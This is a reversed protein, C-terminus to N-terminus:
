ETNNPVILAKADESTPERIADPVTAEGRIRLPKSAMAREAEEDRSEEETEDERSPAEDERSRSIM